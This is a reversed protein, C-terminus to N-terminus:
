PVSASWSGPGGSEFGDAFVVASAYEDAGIDMAGGVIRPDGDLDHDLYPADVHGADICPSGPLTSLFMGAGEISACREAAVEEVHIGGDRTDISLGGAGGDSPLYLTSLSLM